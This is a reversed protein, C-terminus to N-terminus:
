RNENSLKEKAKLYSVVPYMAALVAILVGLWGERYGKKVFFSKIFRMKLGIFQKLFGRKVKNNKIM